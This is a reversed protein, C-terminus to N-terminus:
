GEDDLEEEDESGDDQEKAKRAQMERYRAWEARNRADDEQIIADLDSSDLPQIGNKHMFRIPVHNTWWLDGREVAMWLGVEMSKGAMTSAEADALTVAIANFTRPVCDSQLEVIRDAWEAAPLKALKKWEVAAERIGLAAQREKRSRRKPDEPARVLVVYANMGDRDPLGTYYVAQDEPLSTVM